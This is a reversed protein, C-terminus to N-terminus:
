KDFFDLLSVHQTFVNPGSLFRTCFFLLWTLQLLRRMKLRVGIRSRGCQGCSACRSWIGFTLPTRGWGIGGVLCFTLLQEQFSGCFGLPKSSEYGM